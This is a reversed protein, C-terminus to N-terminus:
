RAFLEYLQLLVILAATGVFMWAVYDGIHGTHAGRIVSALPGVAHAVRRVWVAAQARSLAVVALGISLLVTLLAIVAGWVDWGHAASAPAVAGGLYAAVDTFRHAARSAWAPVAPWVGVGLSGIIPVAMAAYISIPIRALRRTDPREQGRSDSGHGHTDVDASGEAGWRTFCRLGVRLVAGATLISVVSFLVLMWSSWVSSAATEAIAKGLGAGFPPLGALAMAAVFYAVALARDRRGAGALEMEDVTAYRDLLVGVVLFLAGKAGAHGAVSLAAGATGDPTLSAAAVMFLGMHAITSDALLRKVHRQHVCMFAGVLATLTGFILFANQFVSHPLTHSFVVWYIRLIGYLGIEVMVGSFLLCVAAPAVAHADALWFHLPVIAAKVLLGCVVSAFVTVTFLEGAGEIGERLQALGLQGTRAYLLAIGMLTICASLTQIVGFNLAGQIASQDEIKIGTLAYGTAGTLELFVFMNFLDGALVFGEMGALFLLLLAFYRSDAEDLGRWSYLVACAVATAILVAFGAALPDAALSIGAALTGQPRWGGVWEIATSASTQVTVAVALAATAVAGVLALVDIAPRPVRNGTAAVVCAAVIPTAILLPLADAANM